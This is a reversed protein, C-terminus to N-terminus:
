YINLPFTFYSLWFPINEFITPNTIQIELDISHFRHSIDGSWTPLNHYTEHFPDRNSALGKCNLKQSTKLELAEIDKFKTMVKRVDANYEPLCHFGKWFNILHPFEKSHFKISTKTQHGKLLEKSDRQLM